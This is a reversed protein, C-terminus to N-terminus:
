LGTFSKVQGCLGKPIILYNYFDSKELAKTQRITSLQDNINWFEYENEPFFQELKRAMVDSLIEILFIADKPILDGWGKMAEYEYKEIDLKVLSPSNLVFDRCLSDLRRVQIKMLDSEVGEATTDMNVTVSYTFDQGNEFFIAGEGDYDGVALEFVKAKFDNLELNKKIYEVAKPIPEFFVVESNPQLAKALLGYTGSNAGIDWIIKPALNQVISVFIQMSKQEHCGEFGRWYIENEIQHGTPLLKVVKEGNLRGQFVGNFYLHQAIRLPIM